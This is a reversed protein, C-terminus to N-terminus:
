SDVIFSVFGFHQLGYKLLLLKGNMAGQLIVVATEDKLRVFILTARSRPLTELM